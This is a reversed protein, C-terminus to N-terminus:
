AQRGVAVLRDWVYRAFSRSMLLLYSPVQDTDDRVLETPVGAVPTRAAGGNPTMEDGLDIACVHELVRRAGTGSLRFMARVHTLDVADTNAPRKGVVIWEAPSISFVLRNEARRSRGLPVSWADEWVRWRQTESEDSLRSAGLDAVKEMVPSEFHEVM